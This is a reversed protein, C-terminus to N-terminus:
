AVALVGVAELAALIANVKTRLSTIVTSENTDYTTDVTNNAVDAIGTQQTFSAIKLAGSSNKLTLQHTTSDIFLRQIGAAPSAPEAIETIDQSSQWLWPNIIKPRRTGVTKGNFIKMVDLIDQSGYKTSTGATPSSVEKFDTYSM